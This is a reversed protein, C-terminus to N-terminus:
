DKVYIQGGKSRLQLLAGGGNVTGSLRRSEDEGDGWGWDGWHGRREALAWEHEHWRWAPDEWSWGWDESWADDGQGGNRRTELYRSVRESVKAHVEAAIEVGLRAMDGADQRILPGVAVEPLENRAFALGEDLELSGSGASADLDFRSSDPVEVDISGASTQILGAPDGVFEVDIDGHRSRAHLRGELADIELGGDETELDVDGVVDRLEIRGYESAVHVDGRAGAIRVEAGEQASVVTTGVVDSIEVSGDVSEVKLAGELGEVEIKGGHGVLKAVGASRRLALTNRGGQAASAEILGSLEELVLPGGEIRAEVPYGRPVFVTVDVTPGAFIWHLFGEVRGLVEVDGDHERAAVDVAYKGWGWTEAIVRVDDDDHSRIELSGRNSSLGSGLAVDARLTGGPRVPLRTDFGTHHLIYVLLIAPIAILIAKGLRRLRAM